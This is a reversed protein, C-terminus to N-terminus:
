RSVTSIHSICALNVLASRESRIRYNCNHEAKLRSPQVPSPQDPHLSPRDDPLTAPFATPTGAASLTPIAQASRDPAPPIGPTPPRDARPQCRLHFRRLRHRHRHSRHLHHHRHFTRRRRHRRLLLHRPLLRSLRFLRHRSGADHPLTCTLSRSADHGVLGARRATPTATTRGPARLLVMSHTHAHRALPCLISNMQARTDPFSSPMPMSSPSQSLASSPNTNSVISALQLQRRTPMTASTPPPLHLFGRSSTKM